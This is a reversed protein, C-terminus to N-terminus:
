GNSGRPKKLGYTMEKDATHGELAERLARRISGEVVSDDASGGWISPCDLPCSPCGAAHRGVVAAGSRSKWHLPRRSEFGRGEGQCPSSFVGGLVDWDGRRPGRRRNTRGLGDVGGMGDVRDVMASRCLRM